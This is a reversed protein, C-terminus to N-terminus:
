ISVGIKRLIHPHSLKSWIQCQSNICQTMHRIVKWHASIPNILLALLLNNNVKPTPHVDDLVTLVKIAVETKNWTGKYVSGSRLMFPM